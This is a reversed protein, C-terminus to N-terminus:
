NCVTGWHDTYIDATTLSGGSVGLWRRTQFRGGPLVLMRRYHIYPQDRTPSFEVLGPEPVSWGNHGGDRNNSTQGNAQYTVALGSEWCVKKGSLDAATVPRGEEAAALVPWMTAVAILAPARKKAILERRGM